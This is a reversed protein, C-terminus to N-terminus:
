TCSNEFFIDNTYFYRKFLKAFHILISHIVTGFKETLHNTELKAVPFFLFFQGTHSYKKREENTRRQSKNLKM